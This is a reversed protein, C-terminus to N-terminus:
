TSLVIRSTEWSGWHARPAFPKLAKEVALIMEDQVKKRSANQNFSFRIGLSDSPHPTLWAGDGDKVQRFEMADVYGM